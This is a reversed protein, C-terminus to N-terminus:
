WNRVLINSPKLDRHAIQEVENLESMTKLLQRLFGLLLETSFAKKAKRREEIIAVLSHEVYEM